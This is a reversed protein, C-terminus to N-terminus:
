LIEALKDLTSKSNNNFVVKGSPFELNEFAQQLVDQEEATLIASKVTDKITELVLPCGENLPDGYTDPCKDNKDPVNDLDRDPCGKFKALGAQEPCDDIADHLGDGDSDPCGSNKVPGAKDPCKDENDYVGDGDRDPCGANVVEGKLDPCKDLLDTVGDNDRDPCGDLDLKGFTDPCKDNQDYVGDGDKDPCGKKDVPGSYDPCLDKDDPLGDKDRDPCGQLSAEGKITPCRDKTDEVGDSDSDPCGRLEWPGPVRVCRDYRDTVGDKDRDKPKTRYIPIAAGFYFDFGTITTLGFFGGLNDSGIFVPGMRAYLGMSFKSYNQGLTMPLSVDFWKSEYRPIISLLSNTRFGPANVKRFSQIWVMGVYINKRLKYDLNINLATPLVWSFSSEQNTFTFVKGMATDVHSTSTLNYKSIQGWFVTDTLSVDRGKLQKFYTYKPDDYKISGLDTLAVGIKLDYKNKKNDIWPKGNLRSEYKKHDPRWEYTFGIDMGYGKGIGKGPLFNNIGSIEFPSKGTTDPNSIGNPQVGYYQERVGGYTLDTEVAWLSDKTVLNFQTGKNQLFFAMQGVLVKGTIGGKLYHDGSRLIERAYTFGYETYSGIQIGFANDKKVQNLLPKSHISDDFSYVGGNFALRAMAESMDNIQLAFRQRVGVAISNKNNWSLMFAPGRVESSLNIYKSKGNINELLYSNDFSKVGNISDTLTGNIAGKIFKQFPYPTKLEVYNNSLNANMSALNMYFYYRNDAINSPNFYMSNTGGYNTNALGLWSQSQGIKSLAILSILIFVKKM